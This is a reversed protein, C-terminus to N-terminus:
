IDQFYNGKNKTYWKRSFYNLLVNFERKGYNCLQFIHSIYFRLMVCSYKFGYSAYLNQIFHIHMSYKTNWFISHNRMIRLFFSIKASFRPPFMTPNGTGVCFHKHSRYHKHFGLESKQLLPIYDQWSIQGDALYSNRPSLAQLQLKTHRSHAEIELCQTPEIHNEQITILKPLALTPSSM